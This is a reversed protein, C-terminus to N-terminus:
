LFLIRDELNFRWCIVLTHIVSKTEGDPKIFDVRKPLIIIQIDKDDKAWDIFYKTNLIINPLVLMFPKNLKFLREMIQKKFKFPPNSVCIAGYDNEFFDCLPNVVDFGLGRLYNASQCSLIEESRFAEWIVKDKPIYDKLCDWVWDPTYYEINDSNLKSLHTNMITDM